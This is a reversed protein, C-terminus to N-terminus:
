IIENSDSACYFINLYKVKILLFFTKKPFFIGFGYINVSNKQVFTPFNRHTM